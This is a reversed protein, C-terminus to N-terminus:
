LDFAYVYVSSDVGAFRRQRADKEGDWSEEKDVFVAFFFRLVLETVGGVRCCVV